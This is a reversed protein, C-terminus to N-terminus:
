QSPDIEFLREGEEVEQNNKVWVNTVLGAIKPAVGVVFGQV